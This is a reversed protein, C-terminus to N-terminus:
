TQMWDPITLTAYSKAERNVTEIYDSNGSVEESNLSIRWNLVGDTTAINNTGAELQQETRGFILWKMPHSCRDQAM